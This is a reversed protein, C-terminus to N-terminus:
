LRREGRTSFGLAHAAHADCGPEEADGADLRCQAPTEGVRLITPVVAPEHDEACVQPPAAEIGVRVDDATRHLEAPPRVHNGPHHRRADLVDDGIAHELPRVDPQREGVIRRQRKCAARAAVYPHDSAQLRRAADVLRLGLDVGDRLLERAFVGGRIGAGAGADRTGGVDKESRHARRQVQQERCDADQQQNGRYVDGVQHEHTGDFAARLNGGAARKSHRVAPQDPLQEGLAEHQCGGACDAPEGDTLEGQARQKRRRGVRQRPYRLDGEVAADDGHRRADGRRDAQQEADQRRPV